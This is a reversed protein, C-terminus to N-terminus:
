LLEEICSQIEQLYYRAKNMGDVLRELQNISLCKRDSPLRQRQNKIDELTLALLENNLQM